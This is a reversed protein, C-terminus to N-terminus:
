LVRTTENPKRGFFTPSVSACSWLLSVLKIQKENRFVDDVRKQWRRRQKDLWIPLSVVRLDYNRSTGSFPLTEKDVGMVCGNVKERWCVCSRKRYFPTCGFFGVFTNGVVTPKRTETTELLESGLVLGQVCPILSHCMALSLHEISTQELTGDLDM